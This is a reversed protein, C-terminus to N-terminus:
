GGALPQSGAPNRGIGCLNSMKEVFREVVEACAIVDSAIVYEELSHLGAGRPGFVLTPIGAEALLAADTWFSVAGWDTLAPLLSRATEYFLRHYSHDPTTEFPSRSFVVSSSAEFRDVRCKVRNLVQQLEEEVLSVSEGPVTRREYKLCCHDPYSSWERGGQILSAHLSGTGLLPHAQGTQLRQDLAELEQLVTGMARISDVGDKPRSGHAAVGQTHIELWVFGKHAICVKLDTPELVLGFDIPQEKPWHDLFYQTGLSKDEEDAVASLVVEGSFNRPKQALTLLATVAAAVGSKMDQTGRGFIQGGTSRPEFPCDMGEVGVTDLHGNLLIRPGPQAGQIRAVVNFRGTDVPQIESQIGHNQFLILLYAAIESEGAGGPVLGPNVSNIRVLDQLIEIAMARGPQVPMTFGM